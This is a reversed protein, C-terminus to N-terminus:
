KLKEWIPNLFCLKSEVTFSFTKSSFLLATNRISCIAENNIKKWENRVSHFCITKVNRPPAYLRYVNYMCALERAIWGYVCACLSLSPTSMLSLFHTWVFTVKCQIVTLRFFWRNITHAPSQRSGWINTHLCINGCVRVCNGCWFICLSLRFLMTQIITCKHCHFSYFNRVYIPKQKTRNLKNAGDRSQEKLADIRLSIGLGSRESAGVDDM